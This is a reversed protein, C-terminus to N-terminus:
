ARARVARSRRLDVQAFAKREEARLDNVVHSPADFVMIARTETSYSPWDPITAHNPNGTRAFAIWAGSVATEVQVVAEDGPQNRSAHNYVYQIEMGHAPGLPSAGDFDFSYMWIPTDTAKAQREALMHSGHYFRQSSIAVFLDWPSAGPRSAAFAELVEDRRDGLIREARERLEAETLKGQKPDSALFLAAEDRCAGIMIPVDLASPAPVPDYPHAQLHEGNVVPALQIRLSEAAQRLKDAPVAQLGAVDAVALKDMLARANAAGRRASIARISPGSQIIARHFLGKASPMALLTSVKLGGGSEGFITVNGPDGGFSAINDRVWRLALEADLMGVMGSGAYEPGGVEQLHLYGFVNLRHNITVVVVDGREALAAGDYLPESGAGQAFGRGHLWVMVPRKGELAPTWVNLFLCDESQPLKKHDVTYSGVKGSQPCVSGFADATRIGQWAQVPVPAKFRQTGATSEGYRVGRFEIVNANRQDTHGQLQGAVTSAIHPNTM